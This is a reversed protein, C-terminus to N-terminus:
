QVVPMFVGGVKGGEAEADEYAGVVAMLGIDGHADRAGDRFIEDRDDQAMDGAGVTQYGSYARGLRGRRGASCAQDVRMSGFAAASSRFSSHAPIRM